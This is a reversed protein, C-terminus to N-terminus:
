LASRVWENYQEKIDEPEYIKMQRPFQLMWGWLTPSIQVDVTTKCVNGSRRIRIDHGFKDYVVEILEPVFVFTVRRIKGGYMKFSQLRYTSLKKLQELAESSVSEDCIMPAEIRDLRFAKVKNEYEPEPRYCPLYYNGDDFILGLPEECYIKKGHAYIKEGYENLHFYYFSLKLHNEIATEAAEINSFIDDNRHKVTLFQVANRKLLQAKYKGSLEALKDLLVETKDQPIFAASQVADMIIKVESVSFRRHKVYYTNDHWSRGKFVEYGNDILTEIDRYVTRRESSIGLASLEDILQQTTIQHEPDTLENLLEWIKLIKIKNPVNEGM